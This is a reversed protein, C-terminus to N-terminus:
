SNLTPMLSTRMHSIDSSPMWEDKEVYAGGQSDRKIDGMKIHLEKTAVELVMMMLSESKDDMQSPTKGGLSKRAVDKWNEDTINKEDEKKVDRKVSWVESIFMVLEAGGVKAFTEAIELGVSNSVEFPMPFMLAKNGQAVLYAQPVEGTAFIMEKMQKFIHDVMGMQMKNLM